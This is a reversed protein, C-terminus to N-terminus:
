LLRLILFYFCETSMLASRCCCSAANVSYLHLPPKKPIKALQLSSYVNRAYSHMCCSGHTTMLFFLGYEQQQHCSVFRERM